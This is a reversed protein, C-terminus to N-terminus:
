VIVTSNVSRASGLLTTAAREVDEVTIDLICHPTIAECGARCPKTAVLPQLVIHPVGWTRFRVPGDDPDGDAPHCTLEVVPVGVAAAIHKQASDNGLFLSCRSFIAAVTGLSVAGSVAVADGLLQRFRDLLPTEARSGMVVFQAGTASHLTRCVSAYREVPWTKKAQSAGLGVAVLPVDRSAKPALMSDAERKESESFWIELRDDTVNLDLHRLLDLNREVEHRADRACVLNTFLADTGRNVRSKRETSSESFALRIPAGSFFSIWTAGYLDVCYRPIVALDPSGFRDRLSRALRKAAPIDFPNVAVPVAHDVYPCSRLIPYSEVSTVATITAGPFNRRLERFFPSALIVDGIRDLKIVLINRIDRAASSSSQHGRALVRCALAHYVGM